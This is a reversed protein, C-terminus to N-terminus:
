IGEWGENEQQYDVPCMLGILLKAGEACTHDERLSFRM